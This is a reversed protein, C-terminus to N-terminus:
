SSNRTVSVQVKLRFMNKTGRSSYARYLCAVFRQAYGKFPVLVPPLVVLIVIQGDEAGKVPQAAPAVKQGAAPVGAREPLGDVYQPFLRAEGVPRLRGDVFLPGDAPRHLLEYLGEPDAVGDM